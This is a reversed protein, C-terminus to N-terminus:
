LRRIVPISGGAQPPSAGAASNYLDLGLSNIQAVAVLTTGDYSAPVRNSWTDAGSSQILGLQNQGKTITYYFVHVLSIFGGSTSANPGIQAYNFQTSSAVGVVVFNGDFSSDAANPVGIVNGVAVTNPSSTIAVVNNSTRTLSAIAFTPPLAFTDSRAAFPVNSGDVRQHLGSTVTVVVSGGSPAAGSITATNSTPSTNKVDNLFSSYAERQVQDNVRRYTTLLSKGLAEIQPQIASAGLNQNAYDLTVVDSPTLPMGVNTIPNGNLNIGNRFTVPGAHGAQSNLAQAITTMWQNFTTLNPDALDESKFIPAQIPLIPSSPM